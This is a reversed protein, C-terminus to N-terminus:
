FCVFLFFFGCRNLIAHPSPLHCVKNLSGRNWYHVFQLSHTHTHPHACEHTDSILATVCRINSPCRAPPHTQALSATKLLLLFFFFFFSGASPVKCRCCIHRVCVKQFLRTRKDKSVDNLHLSKEALLWHRFEANKRYFDDQSLKETSVLRPPSPFPYSSTFKTPAVMFSFPCFNFVCPSVRVCACVCVCACVSVRVCACVCACVISLFVNENITLLRHM